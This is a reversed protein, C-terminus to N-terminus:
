EHVGYEKNLGISIAKQNEEYEVQPLFRIDRFGLEKDPAQPDMPNRLEMLLVGVEGNFEGNAKQAKTRYAVSRGVFIARVTYNEGEVPLSTYLKRIPGPFVGDVCVVKQGVQM